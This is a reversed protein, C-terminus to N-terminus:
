LNELNQRDMRTTDGVYGWTVGGLEQRIRGNVAKLSMEQLGRLESGWLAPDVLLNSEGLYKGMGEASEWALARATLLHRRIREWEEASLGNEKLKRLEALLIETCALARPSQMTLRIPQGRRVEASVRLSGELGVERLRAQLVLDLLDAWVPALGDAPLAAETQRILVGSVAQIRASSQRARLSRSNAIWEPPRTEGCPGEPLRDLNDLLLDVIGEGDIPGVTVLVLRCKQALEQTFYARAQPASYANIQAASPDDATEPSFGAAEALRHAQQVPDEVREAVRAVMERQIQRFDAESFQPDLLAQSFIGWVAEFQESLCNLVVASHDPGHETKVEAGRMELKQRFNAGSMTGAGGRLAAEIALAQLGVRAPDRLAAGGEFYLRLHIYPRDSYQQVVRIKSYEFRVVGAMPDHALENSQSGPCGAILLGLLVLGVTHLFRFNM